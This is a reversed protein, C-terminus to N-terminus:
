LSGDHVGVRADIMVPRRGIRCPNSMGGIYPM